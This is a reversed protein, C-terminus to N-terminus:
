GRHGQASGALGSREKVAASQAAHAGDAAQCDHGSCSLLALSVVLFLCRFCRILWGWQWSLLASLLVRGCMTSFRIKRLVSSHGWLPSVCAVRACRPLPTPPLLVHGRAWVSVCARVCCVCLSYVINAADSHTHLPHGTVEAVKRAELAEKAQRAMADEYYRERERASENARRLEDSVLGFKQEFKKADEARVAAMGLLNQEGSQLNQQLVQIQHLSACWVVGFCLASVRILFWIVVRCWDFVICRLWPLGKSSRISYPCFYPQGRSIRAVLM